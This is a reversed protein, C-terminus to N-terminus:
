AKKKKKHIQSILYMEPDAQELSSKMLCKCKFITIGYPLPDWFLLFCLSGFVVHLFFFFKFFLSYISCFHHIWKFSAFCELVFHYFSLATISPLQLIYLIEYSLTDAYLCIISSEFYSNTPSFSSQSYITDYFHTRCTLM